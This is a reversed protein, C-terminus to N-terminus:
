LRGAKVATEVIGAIEAGFDFCARNLDEFGAYYGDACVIYDVRGNDWHRRSLAIYKSDITYEAILRENTVM